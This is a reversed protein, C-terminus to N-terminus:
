NYQSPLIIIVRREILRQLIKEALGLIDEPLYYGDVVIDVLGALYGLRSPFDGDTCGDFKEALERHHSYLEHQLQQFIEPFMAINNPM